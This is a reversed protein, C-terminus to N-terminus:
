DTRQNSTKRNPLGVWLLFALLVIIAMSSLYALYKYTRSKEAFEELSNTRPNHGDYYVEVTDGMRVDPAVEGDARYLHDAVIFSYECYYGSKRGRRGCDGTYGSTTQQRKAAGSLVAAKYGFLAVSVLGILM